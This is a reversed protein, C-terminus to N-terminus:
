TLSQSFHYFVQVCEELLKDKKFSLHRTIIKLVDLINKRIFNILTSAENPELNFSTNKFLIKKPSFKIQINVESGYCWFYSYLSELFFNSVEVELLLTNEPKQINNIHEFIVAFINLFLQLSLKFDELDEKIEQVFPLYFYNFTLIDQYSQVINAIDTKPLKIYKKVVLLSDSYSRLFISKVKSLIIHDM